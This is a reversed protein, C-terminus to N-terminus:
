KQNFLHKVLKEYTKYMRQPCVQRVLLINDRLWTTPDNWKSASEIQLITHSDALKYSKGMSQLLKRQKCIDQMFKVIEAKEM